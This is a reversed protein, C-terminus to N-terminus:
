SISTYDSVQTAGVATVFACSAPYSPSYACNAKNLRSYYSTAGDDGTAVLITVGMLGLRVAQFEFFATESLRLFKEEIGYSISIVLPPKGSEFVDKLYYAMESDSYGFTTPSRGVAMIYELDLNGEACLTTDRCWKQTQARPDNVRNVAQQPLEFYRQFLSLDTPSYHENSTAYVSQTALPSGINSEINYAQNIRVPTIFGRLIGAELNFAVTSPDLYKPMIAHAKVMPIQVTNMVFSVHEDLSSPISYEKSRVFELNIRRDFLGTDDRSEPNHSYTQFKTDFTKEWVSLPARATVYDEYRSESVITAGISKVYEVILKHSNPNATFAAIEDSTMHKGYKEHSPDSVELLLQKLEDVNNQKVIFVVDHPQTSLAAGKETFEPHTSIWVAEERFVHTSSRRNNNNLRKKNPTAATLVNADDTIANINVNSAIATAANTSHLLRLCCVLLVFTAVVNRREKM